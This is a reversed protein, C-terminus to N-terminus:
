SCAGAKADNASRRTTFREIEANWPDLLDFGGTTVRDAITVRAVTAGPHTMLREHTLVDCRATSPLALLAGVLESPDVRAPCRGLSHVVVHALKNPQYDVLRRSPPAGLGLCAALHELLICSEDLEISLQCSAHTSGQFRPNVEIFLPVGDKVLLDVGFAGRYGNSRLWRGIEEVRLQITDLLGADLDSVAGFDNGCYGFPRTTCTPIGILQLSAPHVTVGDQWVVGGINVPVGGDIYPAVSVFSESEHLWLAELDDRRDVRVLGTGGSTRSRRLMIPGEDLYRLSQVQDEDAVYTWPIGPIGLDAVASEVWPKHEFASQHDKFMGIYRCRDRRAFCLASVLTSPRYTFVASPDSLTVLAAHRFEAFAERDPEADIDYADLDVRAGSLDELAVGHVSHRRAYRSIISFSAAFQPIDAVGEIDDGRTGFWVLQRKGLTTDIARILTARDM